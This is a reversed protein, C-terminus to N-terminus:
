LWGWWNVRDRTILEQETQDQTLLKTFEDVEESAQLIVWPVPMTGPEPQERSARVSCEILFEKLSSGPTFLLQRHIVFFKLIAM